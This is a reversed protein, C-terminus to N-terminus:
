FETEVCETTESIVQLVNVTETEDVCETTEPVIQLVNVTEPVDCILNSDCDNDDLCPDDLCHGAWLCSDSVVVFTENSLEEVCTLSELECVYDNSCGNGAEDYFACPDGLCHGVWDCTNCPLSFVASSILLAVLKM